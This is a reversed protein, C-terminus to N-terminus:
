ALFGNERLWPELAEEVIDKQTFPIIGKMERDLAAAKLASAIEPRVRVHIPIPSPAIFAGRIKRKLPTENSDDANATESRQVKDITTEIAPKPISTGQRIFDAAIKPDLSSHDREIGEVLSMRKSM